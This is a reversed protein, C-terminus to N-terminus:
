RQRSEHRQGEFAAVAADLSEFTPPPTAGKSEIMRVVLAWGKRRPNVVWLDIGREQLDNRAALLAEAATSDIGAAATADIVVLDIDDREGAMRRLENSLRRANLFVLPGYQRWILLGPIERAGEHEDVDVFAGSPTRGVVATTPSHVAYGLRLLALLVGVLVGAMVGFVMVGAFAVVSIVFEDRRAQWLQRFYNLDSLGILAVCLIASLGSLPLYALLGLLFAITLVCLLAAFLGSIQSKAGAGINATTATLSGALPYGGSLGAAINSAGIALLERDPDVQDKTREAALKLSALSKTFGLIVVALAVPVLSVIQEFSISGLVSLDPLGGSVKGVVAVGADELGALAVVLMSGAVIVLPGPVRPAFRRILVLIAVSGIGILATTLHIQGVRGVLDAILTYFASGGGGPKVGVLDFLQKLITLWVIGEIFGKLVPEPILDAIWGMRLFFFVICLIGTILALLIAITAPSADSGVAVAAVIGGALVAVSTDPGIVFLKSRGFVAYAVLALPITYLGVIPPVGILTACAMGLPMLIAWITAGAVLDKMLWSAQYGPTRTLISFLKM